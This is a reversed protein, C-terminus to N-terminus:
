SANIQDILIVNFSTKLASCGVAGVPADSKDFFTRLIISKRVFHPDSRGTRDIFKVSAGVLNVDTRRVFFKLQTESGLNQM